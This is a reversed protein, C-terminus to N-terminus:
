NTKQANISELIRYKDVIDENIIEPLDVITNDGQSRLTLWVSGNQIAYSLKQSEEPTLELTVNTYTSVSSSSDIGGTIVNDLSLININQLLISTFPQQVVVDEEGRNLLHIEVEGNFLVDIHNGVKLLDSVGQPTEVAVSMARMGEKIVYAIGYSAAGEGKEVIRNSIIIEDTYITNRAMKGVVNEMGTLSNVPIGQIPISKVALMDQTIISNAPIEKLAVIIEKYEVENNNIRSNLETIYFFTIASLILASILAIIKIKKM